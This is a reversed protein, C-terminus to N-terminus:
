SCLFKNFILRVILIFCISDIVEYLMLFSVKIDLQNIHFSCLYNYYGFMSLTMKVLASGEDTM